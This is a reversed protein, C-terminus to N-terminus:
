KILTMKRIFVEGGVELQAIYLGSPMDSANWSATHEGAEKMGDVLTVVKQGVINWISLLVQAEEKLEYSITTTPNFPNPYNPNLKVTEPIEAIESEVAQGTSVAILFRPETDLYDDKKPKLESNTQESENRIDMGQLTFRYNRATRLDIEKDLARDILRIDWYDPLRELGQWDLQLSSRGQAEFAVPLEMYADSELPVVNKSLRNGGSIGYLAIADPKLSNLKFVNFRDSESSESERFELQYKDSYSDDGLSLTLGYNETGGRGALSERNRSGSMLDGKSLTVTGKVGTANTYRVWFAQFPAIVDGSSLPIYAGNGSGASPEWVMLNANVNPDVSEFANLLADVSLETGYPNGVLNWGEMGDIVGNGNYDDATVRIAVTGTNEPNDTRIVKPFGGQIGPTQRRDDEFVYIMYGKGPDLQQNMDTVPSFSGGAEESWTYITPEQAPASSGTSGQTWLQQFLDKFTTERTPTAIMHWGEEGRIGTAFRSGFSTGDIKTGPSFRKGSSGQITAHRVLEGQAAPQRNLSQGAGAEDSYTLEYITNELPDTLVMTDGDEPLDMGHVTLLRAGGFNGAPVAENFIVLAKGAEIVTNQPFSYSLGKQGSLVWGSVDVDVSENNVLEVFDAESVRVPEGALMGGANKQADAFIENIVIDPTDNDIITLTLAQPSTISGSTNNQLRFVARKRGEYEEDNSLEVSISRITGSTDRATFNVTQASFNGLDQASATSSGSVFFLDVSVASNGAELLKVPLFVRSSSENVSLTSDAFVLVPRANEVASSAIDQAQTVQDPCVFPTMAALLSVAFCIFLAKFLKGPLPYGM